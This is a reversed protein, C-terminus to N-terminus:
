LWYFVLYTTSFTPFILIVRELGKGELLNKELAAKSETQCSSINNFEFHMQILTFNIKIVFYYLNNLWLIMFGSKKLIKLGFLPQSFIKIKTRLNRFNKKYYVETRETGKALATALTLQSLQFLKKSKSIKRRGFCVINQISCDIM